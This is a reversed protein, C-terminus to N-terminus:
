KGDVSWHWPEVSYNKFGVEQLGLLYAYTKSQRAKSNKLKAVKTGGSLLIGGFDIACGYIHRSGRGPGTPLPATPPNCLSSRGSIYSDISLPSTANQIRLSIQTEITRITSGGDFKEDFNQAKVM